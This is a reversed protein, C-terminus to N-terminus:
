MSPFLLLETDLTATLLNFYGLFFPLVKLNWKSKGLQDRPCSSFASGDIDCAYEVSETKGFAIEHWFQEEVYRAPLCGASSYRRSFAKNAMKEFDRFTYKRGSMFFTVKDDAAWEALRLPQVRTTFKFGPNEKMLVVGAPVSASIPSIIKCIGSFCYPILYKQHPVSRACQLYIVEALTLQLNMFATM